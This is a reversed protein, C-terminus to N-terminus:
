AFVVQYTALTDVSLNDVELLIDSLMPMRRMFSTCSRLKHGVIEAELAIVNKRFPVKSPSLHLVFM